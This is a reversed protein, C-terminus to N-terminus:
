GAFSSRPILEHKLIGDRLLAELFLAYLSKFFFITIAESLLALPASHRATRSARKM